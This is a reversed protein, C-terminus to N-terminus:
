RWSFILVWKQLLLLLTLTPFEFPLPSAKELPESLINGIERVGSRIPNKAYIEAILQHCAKHMSGDPNSPSGNLGENKIGHALLRESMTLLTNSTIICSQVCEHHCCSKCWLPNVNSRVSKFSKGAWCHHSVFNSLLPGSNSQISM